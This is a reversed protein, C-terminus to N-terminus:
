GKSPRKPRRTVAGPVSRRAATRKVASREQPAPIAERAATRGVLGREQTEARRARPDGHRNLVAWIAAAPKDGIAWLRHPLQADFTISDGPGLTYEEFGIRIGLRGSTVCAYEKGGHRTLMDAPCSEGGVDYVVYLFELEDDAAPTLREWRVGSALRITQRTNHRQVPGGADHASRREAGNRHEPPLLAPATGADSFLDDVLLGLENAIAYLTGVSPTVRGTEIQSVLSPSVSVARALGRLTLGARTRALRLRAGLADPAIAPGSATKTRPPRSPTTTMRHPDYRVTMMDFHANVTFM